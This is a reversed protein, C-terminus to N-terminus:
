YLATCCMDLVEMTAYRPLSVPFALRYQKKNITRTRCLFFSWPAVLAAVACRSGGKVGSRLTSTATCRQPLFQFRGNTNTRDCCVCEVNLIPPSPPLDDVDHWRPKPRTKRPVWPSTKFSENNQPAVKSIARTNKRKKHTAEM